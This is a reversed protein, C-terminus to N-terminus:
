GHGCMERRQGASLEQRVLDLRDLLLEVDARETLFSTFCARLLSRGEYDVRGLWTRGDAELALAISESTLGAEADEFLVVPLPSHNGIRWGRRPLEERLWAALEFHRDFMARYAETGGARLAMWLRLGLFRRSWQSTTVYADVGDGAPMYGTQVAYARAVAAGDRVFVMGAGMPVSLWKHADITVSDALEIGDLLPRRTEDVILAGAWAADVHLHLEHQQAVRAIARLPDLEGANTTGATAGVMVPRWGAARDTVLAQRLADVEMRGDGTTPVLRVADTGLGAARAIKIWALHADASVYLSPRGEFAAVGLEGFDPNARVLAVLLATANAESGGSTFNGAAEAPFQLRDLLWRIVRREMAVSAPAHTVVAMQPNRMAVLLDALVAPWSATPNFYGFCRASASLLDGQRMLESAERFAAVAGIAEDLQVEAVAQQTQAMTRPPAVHATHLDRYSRMVVDVAADFAEGSPAEFPTQRVTVERVQREM